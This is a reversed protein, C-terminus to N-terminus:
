KWEGNLGIFRFIFFAGPNKYAELMYNIPLSVEYFGNNCGADPKKICTLTPKPGKPAIPDEKKSKKSM